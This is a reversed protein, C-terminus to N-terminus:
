PFMERPGDFRRRRGYGSYPSPEVRRPVPPRWVNFRLGAKRDIVASGRFNLAEERGAGVAYRTAVGGPEVFYLHQEGRQRRDDGAPLPQRVRGTSSAPQSRDPHSIEHGHDLM